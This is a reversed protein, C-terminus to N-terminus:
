LFAHGAADGSTAGLQVLTWAHELADIGKRLRTANWGLRKRGRQWHEAQLARLSGLVHEVHADTRVIQFGEGRLHGRTAPRHQVAEHMVVLEGVFTEAPIGLLNSVEHRGGYYGSSLMAIWLERLSPDIQRHRPM